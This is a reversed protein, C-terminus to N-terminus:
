FKPPSRSGSAKFPGSSGFPDADDFSDFRGFNRSSNGADFGSLREKPAALPTLGPFVVKRLSSELTKLDSPILGGLTILPAIMVAKVSNPHSDLPTHLHVQSPIMLSRVERRELYVLAVQRAQRLGLSLTIHVM